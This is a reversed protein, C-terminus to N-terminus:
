VGINDDTFTGDGHDTYSLTPGHGSVGLADTSAYGDGPFVQTGAECAALDANCADLDGQCLALNQAVPSCGPPPAYAPGTWLVVSIVLFCSCLLFSLFVKKM